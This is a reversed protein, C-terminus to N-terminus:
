CWEWYIVWPLLVYVIWPHKDLSPFVLDFKFVVYVIGVQVPVIMAMAKWFWIRRISQWYAYIVVGFFAVALLYSRELSRAVPGQFFLFPVCGLTLLAVVAYLSLNARSRRRESM